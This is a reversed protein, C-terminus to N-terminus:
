FEGGENKIDPLEIGTIDAIFQREISYKTAAAKRKIIEVMTRAEILEAYLDVPVEVMQSTNNVDM